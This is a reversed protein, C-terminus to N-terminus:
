WKLKRTKFFREKFKPKLNKLSNKFMSEWMNAENYLQKVTAFECAVGYAIVFSDLGLPLTLTDDISTIPSPIYNYNIQYETNPKGVKIYNPYLNFTCRYNDDEIFNISIALKSLNEYPIECQNNSSIKEQHSLKFYDKTVERSIYNIFTLLLNFDNLTQNDVNDASPNEIYDLVDQLGLFIASLKLIDKTM